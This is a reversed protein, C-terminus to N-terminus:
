YPYIILKDKFKTDLTCSVNIITRKVNEDINPSNPNINISMRYEETFFNEILNSLEDCIVQSAINKTDIAYVNINLAFSYKPESYKLTTYEKKKTINEVVVVPFLKDKPESKFIYPKYVSNNILYEKLESFVLDYFKTVEGLM